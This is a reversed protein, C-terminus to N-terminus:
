GIEKKMIYHFGIDAIIFPNGVKIYKLKEYFAVANERANFWILEGLEKKIYEESHKLLMEGFGKKQHNQLIAMGRIQFQNEVNFISNNKRFVSVVGILNKDVFLGFHITTELNDGEFQCSEVPKGSRLVPHRVSFTDITSIKKIEIM